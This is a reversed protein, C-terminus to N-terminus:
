QVMTIIDDTGFREKLEICTFRDAAKIGCM